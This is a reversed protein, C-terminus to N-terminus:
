PLVRGILGDPRNGILEVDFLDNPKICANEVLVPLFNDTYGSCDDGNEFLVERKQGVYDKRLEFAHEEALRLVRQKRRQVVELPVRNPYLAARTRPRPSFPFMHVKAFRVRDMIEITDEFDPESEGPFGVIIDTTISFDPRAVQLKEVTELFIERTYKRNMRKLIVNSGSQLVIHMSPCTNKGNLIADSLDEDVEDPDISSIRLRKLGDIADVARVLDSLRAPEEGEQPAGDFDGINIGTLVVEKYGNQILGHIEEVIEKV